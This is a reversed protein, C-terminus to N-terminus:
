NYLLGKKRMAVTAFLALLLVFSIMLSSDNTGPNETATKGYNQADAESAFFLVSKVYIVAGSDSTKHSDIPDIRLKVIEGKWNEDNSFNVIGVHWKNDTQLAFEGQRGDAWGDGANAYYIEFRYADHPNDIGSIDAKYEVRAFKYTGADFIASGEASGSAEPDITTWPDMGTIDLKAAKESSDFSISIRARTTGFANANSDYVVGYPEAAIASISLLLSFAIIFLITKKM